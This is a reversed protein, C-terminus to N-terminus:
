RCMADNVIEDFYCVGNAGCKAVKLCVHSCIINVSDRRCSFGARCTEVDNFVSCVNMQLAEM